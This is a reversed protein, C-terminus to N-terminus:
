LKRQIITCRRMKIDEEVHKYKKEVEIGTDTYKVTVRDNPKHKDQHQATAMRENRTKRSNAVFYAKDRIAAIQYSNPANTDSLSPLVGMPLVSLVSRAKKEAFEFQSLNWYAEMEIFDLTAFQILTTPDTPKRFVEARRFIEPVMHAQNNGIMKHVANYIIVVDQWELTQSSSHEVLLRLYLKIFYGPEKLWTIANRYFNILVTYQALSLTGDRSEPIVFKEFFLEAMQTTRFMSRKSMEGFIGAIASISNDWESVFKREMTAAILKRVQDPYKLASSCICDLLEPYGFAFYGTSFGNDFEIDQCRILECIEDFYRIVVHQEKELSCLSCLFSIRQLNDLNPYIFESNRLFYSYASEDGYRLLCLLATHRLLEKSVMFDIVFTKAGDEIVLEGSIISLCTDVAIKLLDKDVEIDAGLLRLANVGLVVIPMVFSSPSTRHSQVFSKYAQSNDGLSLHSLAILLHHQSHLVAMEQRNPMYMELYLIADQYRGLSFCCLGLLRHLSIPEYAGQNRAKELLEIADEFEGKVAKSTALQFLNEANEDMFQLEKVSLCQLIVQNKITILEGPKLGAKIIGSLYLRNRTASSVESSKGFHIEMIANRIDSDVAVLSKIHDIPPMDSRHLYLDTIIQDVDEVTVGEISDFRSEIEACTDWTMRPHGGTWHWVRELVHANLPLDAQHLFSDFENRTFDFLLIKEGINFPSLNKNKILESPEAVGSLVYTLRAFEKINIRSFYVSRIQAFIDDSFSVETLADIEDLIIVLKGRISQLILRLEKEHEKHAPGDLPISRQEYIRQKAIILEASDPQIELITDIINRFYGAPSNFKGSLDVYPYLNDRDELELKLHHLMNTKGMQRAVLIYAPRGMGAINARLQHDAQRLVYLPKPINTTQFLAKKRM